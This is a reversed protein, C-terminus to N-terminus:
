NLEVARAGPVTAGVVAWAVAAGLPVAAVCRAVNSLPSLGSLEVVLTLATPVAALAVTQRANGFSLRGSRALVLTLAAGVAAGLYLGFCRACVPLQAGWAFSREPNQHCILSGVAYAAASVLPLSGERPRGDLPAILLLALWGWSAGTLLSGFGGM